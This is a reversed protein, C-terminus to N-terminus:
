GAEKIKEVLEMPPHGSIHYGHGSWSFFGYGHNCDQLAANMLEILDIYAAAAEKVQEDTLDELKM